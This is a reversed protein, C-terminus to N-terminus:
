RIVADLEKEFTNILKKMTKDVIKDTLTKEEDRLIFSLAYSKKSNEIKDGEYVDFLGVRKLLRPETQFALEKIQGFSVQKDLLLALDRRVEPYRPVPKYATVSQRVIGMITNWSFDAYFVNQRIEFSDLLSQDVSGFSVLENDNLLFALGEGFVRNTVPRNILLDEPTGLKKLINMVVSKMHYFDTQNDSTNWSEKQKRGCIFLALRKEERYNALKNKGESAEVKRYVNGFEFFRIDTIRRNQNFAINELGGPLLSQRMANLDTSLPNEINVTHKEDFAGSQEYIAARTLSNNMVETFGLGALLDSLNNQLLDPDPHEQHMLSARVGDTYAINNYGYIRLIEEIIDAERRVDYRYTPVLLTISDDNREIIRIDLDELINDILDTEIEQGALRHIHSYRAETIWGEIPDPYIDIIESSVKGGALENILLAARKLAPLTMNIDAGREFRFSADTSLGHRKATKRITSPDFHASELFINKTKESVGSGAGGFVGAMCMGDTANCILLDDPTLTREIEDLTIFKEGPRAKRVVVENGEIASTDYAHLPQGTEMLVFNTIDVINNIPRIGVAKLLNQMWEPSAKVQVGSITIGTFRPCARPDEVRVPIEAPKQPARFLDPSPLNLKQTGKSKRCNIVAMIDRAVGIHGMADTRNPTLGIELVHDESINFYQSAPMGPVADAPLVLIGEHSTGLGLEDEACIMGESVEGRINAKKIEFAEENQYLITGVTALLVKQGAAVNPAGCVVPLLRGSGTNVTTLSLKDANPHKSCSIVEGVVVGELGGKITQFKEISEVELGCNTLLEGLEDVDMGPDIYKKLWNYSLKM